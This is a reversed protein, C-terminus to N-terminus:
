ELDSLIEDPDESFATPDIPDPLPSRHGSEDAGPPKPKDFPVLSGRPILVEISYDSEPLDEFQFEGSTGSYWKGDRYNNSSRGGDLGQDVVHGSRKLLFPWSKLPGSPGRITGFYKRKEARRSAIPSVAATGARAQEWDGADLDPFAIKCTGAKSSEVRAMGNGDLMGEHTSGDPLELKYKMGKVPDGATDTMRFAVWTAQEPAKEAVEVSAPSVGPQESAEEVPAAGGFISDVRLCPRTTATLDGSM